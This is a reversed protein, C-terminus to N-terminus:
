ELVGAATVSSYTGETRYAVLRVKAGAAFFAVAGSLFIRVSTIPLVPGPTYRGVGLISNVNTSAVGIATAGEIVAGVAAAANIYDVFTMCYKGGLVTTTNVGYLEWYNQAVAAVPTIVAASGRYTTLAYNASVDGNFQVRINETATTLGNDFEIAITGFEAMSAAVDSWDLVMEKVATDYASEKIVAFDGRLEISETQPYIKGSVGDDPLVSWVMGVGAGPAPSLPGTEYTLLYGDDNPTRVADILREFIYAFYDSGWYARQQTMAGQSNEIILKAEKSVEELAAKAEGYDFAEEVYTGALIDYVRRRTLYPSGPVPAYVKGNRVEVGVHRYGALFRGASFLGAPILLALNTGNVDMKYAATTTSIGTGNILILKNSQADYFLNMLGGAVGSFGTYVTSTVGAHTRKQINDPNATDRFYINRNNDLIAVVPRAAGVNVVVSSTSTAALAGKRLIHTSGVTVVQDTSAGGNVSVVEEVSASPWNEIKDNALYMSRSRVEYTGLTTTYFDGVLFWRVSTRMFVGRITAVQGPIMKNSATLPVLYDRMTGLEGRIQGAGDIWFFRRDPSFKGGLGAFSAHLVQVDVQLPQSNATVVLKKNQALYYAVDSSLSQMQQQQAIPDQSFM